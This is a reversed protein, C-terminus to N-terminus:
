PRPPRRTVSSFTPVETSRDIYGAVGSAAIRADALLHTRPATLLLGEAYDGANAGLYEFYLAGTDADRRPSYDGQLDGVFVFSM